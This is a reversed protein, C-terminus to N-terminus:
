PWDPSEAPTPIWHPGRNTAYTLVYSHILLCPWSCVEQHLAIGGVCTHICMCVYLCVYYWVANYLLLLFRVSVYLVLTDRDILREKVLSQCVHQPVKGFWTRVYHHILSYPNTAPSKSWSPRWCSCVQPFSMSPLTILSRTEKNREMYQLKNLLSRSLSMATFSSGCYQQWVNGIAVLLFQVWVQSSLSFKSCQGAMRGSYKPGTLPCCNPRLGRSSVQCEVECTFPHVWADHLPWWLVYM